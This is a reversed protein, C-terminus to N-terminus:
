ASYGAIADVFFFGSVLWFRLAGGGWSVRGVESPEMGVSYVM